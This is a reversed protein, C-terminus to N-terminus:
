LTIKKFPLEFAQLWDCIKVNGSKNMMEWSGNKKNERKSVHTYM